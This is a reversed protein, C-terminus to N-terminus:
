SSVEDEAISRLVDMTEFQQRELQDEQDEGPLFNGPGTGPSSDRIEPPRFPNPTDLM